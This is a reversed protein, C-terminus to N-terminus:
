CGLVAKLIEDMYVEDTGCCGGVIKMPFSDDLAKTSKALLRSDYLQHYM